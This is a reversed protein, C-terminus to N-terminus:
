RGSRSCYWSQCSPAPLSSRAVSAWRLMGLFRALAHDPSVRGLLTRGAVDILSRGIGAVVLAAIAVATRPVVGIAIIPLGLLLSGLLLAPTLRRRGIMLVATGVALVGGVALAASLVAPGGPGMALLGLAVIV